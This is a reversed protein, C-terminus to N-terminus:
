FALPPSIAANAGGAGAASTVVSPGAISASSGVNPSLGSWAPQGSISTGNSIKSMLSNQAGQISALTLLPQEFTLVWANQAQKSAGSSADIMTRFLCNQYIYSPTAITYTGGSQNHADLAAKLAMFTALKTAYGLPERVPCDMRLAITLPQAIVANAAVNQNAFPYKGFDQDILTAGPLPTYNAFFGDLDLDESGSLIGVTFNLAETIAIIPLISGPIAGAIGGCLFIPSLQFALKFAALGPSIGSM